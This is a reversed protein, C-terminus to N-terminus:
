CFNQLKRQMTRNQTRNQAKEEHVSTLSCNFPHGGFDSRYKGNSNGEGNM